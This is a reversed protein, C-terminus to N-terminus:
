LHGLFLLKVTEGPSTSLLPVVGFKALTMFPATLWWRSPLCVLLGPQFWVDQPLLCCVTIFFGKKFGLHAIFFFGSQKPINPTYLPHFGVWDHPSLWQLSGSQVVWYKLPFNRWLNSPRLHHPQRSPFAWDSLVMLPAMINGVWVERVIKWPFGEFKVM